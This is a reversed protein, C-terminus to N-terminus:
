PFLFSEYVANMINKRVGMEILKRNEQTPYVRNSLFVYILDYKPDAWVITGTFGSHGFTEESAYDCAPNARNKDMEPKDWGMGRRSNASQKATFANITEPKLYQVNKYEGGNLLMQMLSALSEANGFLGAHGSVGGLMAAAPDHVMGQVLGKRMDPSISTPVIEDSKFKDLPLFTLRDIGM